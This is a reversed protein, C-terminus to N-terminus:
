LIINEPKEAIIYIRNIQIESKLPPRTKLMTVSFGAQELYNGLEAETFYTMHIDTKFGLLNSLSDEKDGEKVVILIKGLPKLVRNFESLVNKIYIKPTNIISYYSIIGDFYGDKYNISSIDGCEYIISQNSLKSLEICRESIDIGIVKLGKKYLYNSIHGIPGCDADLLLSNNKFFDSYQDLINRDFENEDLENIFEQYYKDAIIDYARKTRLNFSNLSEIKV